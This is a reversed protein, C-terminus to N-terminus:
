MANCAHEGTHTHSQRHTHTHSHTHTHTHTDRQTHTHSHTHTHTHSHTPTFIVSFSTFIFSGAVRALEATSVNRANPRVEFTVAPGLVSYFLVLSLSLSL